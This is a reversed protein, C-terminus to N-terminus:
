QGPHVLGKLDIEGSLYLADNIIFNPDYLITQLAFKPCGSAINMENQPQWFSSSDPEPKFAQIISKRKDTKNIAKLTVIQRFPWPLLDDYEGRMLVFFFSIHTEKGSGDGNLYLRFCMKYGSHDTYFPVSYLSLTKGSRAEERRRNIEPIKWVFRGNYSTSQLTQVLLSLEHFSTQLERVERQINAIQASDKARVNLDIEQATQLGAIAQEMEELKQSIEKHEDIVLEETKQSVEETKQSVEETEQPVIPENLFSALFVGAEGIGMAENTAAVAHSSETDVLFVACTLLNFSFEARFQSMITTTDLQIATGDDEKSVKVTMRDSTKRVSELGNDSRSLALVKDPQDTKFLLYDGDPMDGARQNTYSFSATNESGAALKRANEMFATSPYVAGDMLGGASKSGQMRNSYAQMSIAMILSELILSKVAPDQHLEDTLCNELQWEVSERIQAKQLEQEAVPEVVPRISCGSPEDNNNGFLNMVDEDSANDKKIANEQSRENKLKEGFPDGNGSTVVESKEVIIKVMRSVIKQLAGWRTLEAQVERQEKLVPELLHENQM